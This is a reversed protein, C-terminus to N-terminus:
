FVEDPRGMAASWENWRDPSADWARQAARCEVGVFYKNTEAGFLVALYILAILVSVVDGFGGHGTAVEVISAVIGILTLVVYVTRAKRNGQMILGVVVLAAITFLPSLWLVAVLWGPLDTSSAGALAVLEGLVALGGGIFQIVCVATLATPRDLRMSHRDWTPRPARRAPAPQQPVAAMPDAPTSPTDQSM